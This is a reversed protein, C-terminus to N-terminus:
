ASATQSKNKMFFLITILVIFLILNQILNTGALWGTIEYSEYYERGLYNLDGLLAMIRQSLAYITLCANAHIVALIVLAIISALRIYITRRFFERSKDSTVFWGIGLILFALTKMVDAVFDGYIEKLSGHLLGFKERASASQVATSRSQEGLSNVYESSDRGAESQGFGTVPYLCFLIGVFIFIRNMERDAKRVPCQDDPLFPTPALLCGPSTLGEGINNLAM